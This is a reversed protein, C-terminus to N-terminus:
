GSAEPRQSISMERLACEVQLASEMGLLAATTAFRRPDLLEHGTALRVYFRGVLDCYFYRMELSTADFGADRAARLQAAAVDMREAATFGLGQRVHLVATWFALAARIYRTPYISPRHDVYVALPTQTEEARSYAAVLAEYSPCPETTLVFEFGFGISDALALATCQVFECLRTLAQNTTTTSM